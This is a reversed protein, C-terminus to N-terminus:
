VDSPRRFGIRGAHAELAAEIRVFFAWGLELLMSRAQAYRRFEFEGIQVSRGHMFMPETPLCSVAYQYAAMAHAVATELRSQSDASTM